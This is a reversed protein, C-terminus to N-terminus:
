IFGREELVKFIIDLVRDLVERQDKTVRLMIIANSDSPPAVAMEVGDINADRVAKAIEGKAVVKDDKKIIYGSHQANELEVFLVLTEYSKTKEFTQCSIKRGKYEFESM